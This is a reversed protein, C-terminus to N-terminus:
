LACFAVLSGIAKSVNRAWLRMNRRKVISNFREFITSGDVWVVEDPMTLRAIDDVWDAIEPNPRTDSPATRPALLTM